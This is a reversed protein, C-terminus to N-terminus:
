SVGPHPSPALCASTRLLNNWYISVLVLGQTRGTAETHLMLTVSNDDVGLVSKLSGLFKFLLMSTLRSRKLLDEIM